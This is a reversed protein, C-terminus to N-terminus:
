LRQNGHGFQGPGAQEAATQTAAAKTARDAEDVKASADTLITQLQEQSMSDSHRYAEVVAHAAQAMSESNLIFADMLDLMQRMRDTYHAASDRLDPSVSWVAFPAGESFANRAHDNEPKLNADADTRLSDGFTRVGAPDVKFGDGSSTDGV